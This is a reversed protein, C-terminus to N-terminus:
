PTHFILRTEIRMSRTIMNGNRAIIRRIRTHIKSLEKRIGRRPASSPRHLTDYATIYTSNTNRLATEQKDDTYIPASRLVLHIQTVTIPLM